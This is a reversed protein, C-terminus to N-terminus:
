SLNHSSPLLQTLLHPLVCIPCLYFEWAQGGWAATPEVSGHTSSLMCCHLGSPGSALTIPLLRNEDRQHCFATTSWQKPGDRFVEQNRGVGDGLWNGCLVLAPLVLFPFARCPQNRCVGPDNWRCGGATGVGMERDGGVLNLMDQSGAKVLRACETTCHPHTFSDARTKSTLGNVGSFGQPPFLHHFGLSTFPCSKQFPVAQM